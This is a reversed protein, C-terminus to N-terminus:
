VNGAPTHVNELPLGTDAHMQTPQPAVDDAKFPGDDDAYGELEFEIHKAEQGYNEVVFAVDMAVSATDLGVDVGGEFMEVPVAQSSMWQARNGVNVGIIKLEGNSDSSHCWLRTARFVWPARWRVEVAGTHAPVAHRRKRTRDRGCDLSAGMVVPITESRGGEHVGEYGLEVRVPQTGENKLVCTLKEGIRIARLRKPILDIRPGFNNSAFDVVHGALELALLRIPCEPVPTWVIRDATRVPQATKAAMSRKAKPTRKKNKGAKAVSQEVQKIVSPAFVFINLRSPTWHGYATTVYRACAGPQILGHDEVDHDDVAIGPDSDTEVFFRQRLVMHENMSMVIPKSYDMIRLM